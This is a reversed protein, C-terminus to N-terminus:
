KMNCSYGMGGIVTSRIERAARECSAQNSYDHSIIGAGYIWLTLVWTM